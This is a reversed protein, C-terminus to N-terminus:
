NQILQKVVFAQDEETVYAHMPLSLVRAALKETIALGKPARLAHAYPKQTHLPEPYYIMTPVGTEALTKQLADRNDVQLTYQAWVSTRDSKLRPTKFHQGLAAEYRDAVRQRKEIEEPFIKLKEILIAAQLTDLRGTMGIRINQYRTKGQGHVRISRLIEALDADHTFIAGGDGYGGLPKAPFFSTTAMHGYSLTPKGKYFAGTSQAADVIVKMGHLEALNMIETHNAPQGFLDVPIIARPKLSTTQQVHEIAEKLSQPCMNFTDEQVDVFVPTAGILAVVEATAAFTFSPVFVADGPGVGYAMLGMFLADTGNACSIVHPVQAFDQLQKEFEFVEPGMVYHGHALVRQWAQDLADKILAQQSVLDIFPIQRKELTM